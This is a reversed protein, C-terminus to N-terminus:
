RISQRDPVWLSVHAPQMTTAVTDGLDRVLAGLDVDHRLRSAFQEVVLAADYRARNFRRDVAAQVRVRVPVFVAAAVLTAAAVLLDSQLDFAASPVVTIASYVAILVASVVAYTVTRSMLRDLEFLRYRLIAVLIAAPIFGVVITTVWVPASGDDVAQAAVNLVFGGVSAVAGFTVVKLQQREVGSARRLRRVVGAVALGGLVVVVGVIVTVLSTHDVDDYGLWGIPNEIPDAVDDALLMGQFMATTTAVAMCGVIVRWLRRAAASPLTGTPLLVPLGALTLYLFPLWYWEGYWALAITLADPPGGVEVRAAAVIASTSGTCVLVGIASLVWAIRHGARRFLLLAGILAFPLGVVAFTDADDTVATLAVGALSLAVVIVACATSVRASM